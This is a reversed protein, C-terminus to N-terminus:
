RWGPSSGRRCGQSVQAPDTALNLRGVVRRALVESKLVEAQTEVNGYADFMEIEKYPLM